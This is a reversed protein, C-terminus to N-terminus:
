EPVRDFYGCALIIAYLLQWSKQGIRALSIVDNSSVETVKQDCPFM